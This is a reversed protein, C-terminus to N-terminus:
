GNPEGKSSPEDFLSMQETLDKEKTKKKPQRRNIIEMRAYGNLINVTLAKEHEEVPLGFSTKWGEPFYPIAKLPKGNEDVKIPTYVETEELDFVLLMEKSTRIVNGQIKYKYDPNWGMLDFIKASLMRCVIKKPVRKSNKQKITVWRIADKADMDCARVVVKKENSSVLIHIYDADTIKNICATNFNISDYKFTIAIEYMHAFFERRVVQFGDLSYNEVYEEETDVRSKKEEEM